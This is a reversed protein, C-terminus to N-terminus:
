DFQRTKTVHTLSKNKKNINQVKLKLGFLCLFVAYCFIFIILTCNHLQTEM